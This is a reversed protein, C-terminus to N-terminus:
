RRELATALVREAAVEAAPREIGHPRIFMKVFSRREEVRHDGETAMRHVVAAADREDEAIEVFRGDLLYRFHVFSSTVAPAEGARFRLAVCPVGLIAAELFLSTNLGVVAVAHAIGNYLDVRQQRAEPFGPPVVRIDPDDIESWGSANKPHPRVVLAPADAGFVARLGDILRLAIEVERGAGLGIESSVAYLVYRRNPALGWDRLVVARDRRLEDSFLYDFTPAGVVEVMESDVGHYWAAERRQIDNWVLLRDPLVHFSGKSSLNDWSLVLGVAAIGAKHAARIADIERSLPYIMPSVFVVDPQIRRLQRVLGEPPPYAHEVHRLASIATTSGAIRLLPRPTTARVFVRLPAPLFPRWRTRLAPVWHPAHALYSRLERVPVLLRRAYWSWFRNHDTLDLPELRLGPLQERAAKVAHRDDDTDPPTALSVVTEHGRRELEALIPVVFRLNSAGRLVTWVRVRAAAPRLAMMDGAVSARPHRSGRDM